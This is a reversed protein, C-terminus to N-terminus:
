KEAESEHANLPPHAPINLNLTGMKVGGVYHLKIETIEGREYADILELVLPNQIEGRTVADRLRDLIPM